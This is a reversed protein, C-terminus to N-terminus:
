FDPIADQHEEWTLDRRDKLDLFGNEVAKFENYRVGSPSYIIETLYPKGPGDALDIALIDLDERWHIHIM